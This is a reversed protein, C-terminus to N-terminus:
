RTTVHYSHQSLFKVREKGCEVAEARTFFEFTDYCEVWRGGTWQEYRSAIRHEGWEESGGTDITVSANQIKKSDRIMRTYRPYTKVNNM